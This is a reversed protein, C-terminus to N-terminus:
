DDSLKGEISRRRQARAEHDGVDAIDDMEVKGTPTGPRDVTKVRVTGTEDTVTAFSRPLTTRTEITHRVGITSTERFCASVVHDLDDVHALVQIHSAQRGKKGVVTSQVVDLVGRMNRLHDLGVALDEPTQDDIEFRVVAVSDPTPDTQTNSPTFLVVRLVNSVTAFRKTGFGHGTTGLIMPGPPRQPTPSLHRIIAAGTPTVREGTIGDDVVPLGELLRATAPAPVPLTGHATEVRGSGVPLPSMSWSGAGIADIAAAAAVIDAISDWAGVEHFTVDEPKHGHVWAEADALLSFIDIARDRVGHALASSELMARIDRYSRHGPHTHAHTHSALGDDGHGHLHDDADNAVLFRRGVLTGDNHDVLEYSVSEPLEVSALADLVAPYATPVADLVAAVFMDGAAGGIADLHVHVPALSGAASWVRDTPPGLGLTM